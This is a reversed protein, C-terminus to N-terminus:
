GRQQVAGRHDLGADIQEDPKRRSQMARQPPVITWEDAAKCEDGGAHHGNGLVIGLFHESEGGDGIKPQDNGAGADAHFLGYPGGDQEHDKM